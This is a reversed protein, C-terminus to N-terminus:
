LNNFTPVIWSSEEHVVAPDDAPYFGVLGSGHEAYDESMERGVQHMMLRKAETDLVQTEYARTLGDLSITKVAQALRIRTNFHPNGDLIAQWYRRSLQYLNDEQQTLENILGQKYQEFTDQDMSQLRQLFQDLFRDSYLQLLAPDTSPSQVYLILGPLDKVEYDRAFVIYGLQLETRLEAFYPANILQAMLRYLARERLGSNEGQYYGLLAADNHDIQMEHRYRREPLSAVSPRVSPADASPPLMTRARSGLERANSETINGHVLMTLRLQEVWRDRLEILSEPTVNELAALMEDPTHSSRVLFEGLRRFMQNLVPDERTNRLRRELDSKLLTFREPDIQHETLEVLLTDLLVPLRDSYGYLRLQLGRDTQSLGYGSGALGAQYRIESLADDVLDLYLRTQIEAQATDAIVPTEALLTLDLKPTRFSDDQEYWLTFGPQIEIKQPLNNYLDSTPTAMPLVSLDKPIFPNSAPLSLDDSPEPTRWEAVQNGSLPTLSYPTEYWQSQTETTAEPHMLTVLANDPRLHGLWQRVTEPDFNELMYPGRLVNPADYVALREALRQVTTVPAVQEAFRFNITNITRLEEYRWPELGKSEIRDLYDFMLTAVAQWNALGEPTLQINVEFSHTSATLGGSRTHLADAWGREKLASILSGSSQHGLLHAIYAHPKSQRLDLTGPVPFRFSLQRTERRPEVEMLMPLQTTEFLSQDYVPSTSEVSRVGNFRDNVWSKLTEIDQPGYVALSLRDAVYHQRYFEILRDRLNPHQLTERNGIALRSAPHDPRVVERVADELRRSDNQLSATFESHVANIEREVYDPNFLPAIFFQAFRDLAPELQQADIDFYYLTNEDATYANDSGGNQEIFRHYGDVEPYKETGLFLMHELFHALGPIDEPNSWSGVSVNLAAAAKESEPDSVLLVKLGNDLQYTQFNRTEFDSVAINSPNEDASATPYFWLGASALAAVIGVSLAVLVGRKM